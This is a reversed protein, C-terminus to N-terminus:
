RLRDLRAYQPCNWHADSPAGSRVRSVFSRFSYSGPCDVPTLVGRPGLPRARCIGPPDRDVAARFAVHRAGGARDRERASHFTVMRDSSTDLAFKVNLPPKLTQEHAKSHEKPRSAPNGATLFFSRFQASSGKFANWCGPQATPSALNKQCFFTFVVTCKLPSIHSYRPVDKRLVPPFSLPGGSARRLILYGKPQFAPFVAGERIPPFAIPLVELAPLRPILRSIHNAPRRRPQFLGWVDVPFTDGESRLIM